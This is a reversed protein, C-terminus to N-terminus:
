PQTAAPQPAATLRARVSPFAAVMNRVADNYGDAYNPPWAEPNGIPAPMEGFPERQWDTVGGEGASARASLAALADLGKRRSEGDLRMLCSRLVEINTDPEKSMQKVGDTSQAALSRGNFATTLQQTNFFKNLRHEYFYRSVRVPRRENLENLFEVYYLLEGKGIIASFREITKDSYRWYGWHPVWELRPKQGPRWARGFRQQYLGNCPLPQIGVNLPVDKRVPLEWEPWNKM